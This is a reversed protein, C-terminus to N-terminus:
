FSQPIMFDLPYNQAETLKKILLLEVQSNKQVTYKIKTLVYYEKENFISFMTRMLKRKANKQYVSQIQVFSLVVIYGFTNGFNKM